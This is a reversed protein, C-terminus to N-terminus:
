FPLLPLMIGNGLLDVFISFFLSFLTPTLASKESLTFM